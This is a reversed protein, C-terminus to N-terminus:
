WVPGSLWNSRGMFKLLRNPTTGSGDVIAISKGTPPKPPSHSTPRRALRRSPRVPVGAALYGCRRLCVSFVLNENGQETPETSNTQPSRYDLAYLEGRALDGHAVVDGQRGASPRIGAHAHGKHGHRDALLSGDPPRRRPLHGRQSGRSCGNSRCTSVGALEARRQPTAALKPLNWDDYLTGSRLGDGRGEPRPLRRLAVGAQYVIGSRPCHFAIRVSGLRCVGGRM